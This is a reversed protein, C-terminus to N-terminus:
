SACLNKAGNNPVLHAGIKNATANLQLVFNSSLLFM